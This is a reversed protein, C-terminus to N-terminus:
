NKPDDRRRRILLDGELDIVGLAYLVDCALTFWGFTIPSSHHNQERWARLKVWTQSITTPEELQKLIQAAVAILARDPMIGKTPIVM